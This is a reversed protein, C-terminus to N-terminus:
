GHRVVESAVRLQGGQIATRLMTAARATLDDVGASAREALSAELYRAVDSASDYRWSGEFESAARDAVDRVVYSQSAVSGSDGAIRVAAHYRGMERYVTVPIYAVRTRVASNAEDESGAQAAMPAHGGGSPHHLAWKAFGSISSRISGIARALGSSVDDVARDLLSKRSLASDRAATALLAQTPVLIEEYRKHVFGRFFDDLLQLLPGDLAELDDAAQREIEAVVQSVRAEVADAEAAHQSIQDKLAALEETLRAQNAAIGAGATTLTTEIQVATLEQIAKLLESTQHELTRSLGENTSNLTALGRAVDELRQNQARAATSIANVVPESM